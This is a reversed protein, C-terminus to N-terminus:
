LCMKCICHYKFYSHTAYHHIFYRCKGAKMLFQSDCVIV